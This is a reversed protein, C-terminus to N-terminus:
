NISTPVEPKEDPPIEQNETIKKPLNEVQLKSWYLPKPFEDQKSSILALREDKTLLYVEEGTIKKLEMGMAIILIDFTSLYYRGIHDNPNKEKLKKEIISKDTNVPLCSADFETNTQHEIETVLTTNLNHYRNLDYSYFFNRDRVHSIFTNFVTKYHEQSRFIGKYRFYWKALINRVEAICFSPIFLMADNEIKQKSVYIRIDRSREYEEKSSYTAKPKYFEIAVSADFLYNIV